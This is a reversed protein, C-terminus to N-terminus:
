TVATLSQCFEVILRWVRQCVILNLFIKTMKKFVSLKGPPCAVVIKRANETEVPINAFPVFSM